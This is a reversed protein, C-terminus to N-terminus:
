NAREITFRLTTIDFGRDELEQVFTKGGLGQTYCFFNDLLHGDSPHKDWDYMIDRERKSWWVKLAGGRPRGM